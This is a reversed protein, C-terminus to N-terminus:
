SGARSGCADDRRSDTLRKRVDPKMVLRDVVVEITHKRKKDLDIKERLERTEGDVRVRAFGEKGIEEFLKQYEGKRGRIM